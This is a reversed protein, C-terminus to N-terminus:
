TEGSERKETNQGYIGELRVILNEYEAPANGFTADTQHFQSFLQGVQRDSLERDIWPYLVEDEKKIHETLLERYGNLHEAVGERDRNEVAKVVARVHARGTDHDERIVKLIELDDDFYKFLIDEEKAHHYRDAYSRIFDVAGLIVQRGPESGLDIKEILAPILAVMRKILVHEDVLMKMPPSYQIEEEAVPRARERRPVIIERDPYVVQAIRTTMEQESEPTLNHIDVIDKLLCSGVSCPVCGIGYEELIGGVDPNEDIIQKIGSELLRQM